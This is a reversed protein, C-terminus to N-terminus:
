KYRSYIKEFYKDIQADDNAIFLERDIFFVKM